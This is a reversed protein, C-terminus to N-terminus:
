RLVSVTPETSCSAKLQTMEERQVSEYNTLAELQQTAESLKSRTEELATELGTHQYELSRMNPENENRQRRLEHLESMKQEMTIMKSHLTAKEISHQEVLRELREIISERSALQTKFNEIATNRQNIESELQKISGFKAEFTSLENNFNQILNAALNVDITTVSNLILKRM